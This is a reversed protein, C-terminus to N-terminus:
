GSFGRWVGAGPHMPARLPRQARAWASQTRGENAEVHGSIEELVGALVATVAAVETPTPNGGVIEIRPATPVADEASASSSTTPTV